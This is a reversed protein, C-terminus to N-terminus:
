RKTDDRQDIAGGKRREPDYKLGKDEDIEWGPALENKTGGRAGQDLREGPTINDAGMPRGGQEPIPPPPYDRTPSRLTDDSQRSACAASFIVAFVLLARM